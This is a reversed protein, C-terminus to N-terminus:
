IHILSLNEIMNMPSFEKSLSVYDEHEILEYSRLSKYYSTPLTLYEFKNDVTVGEECFKILRKFCDTDEISDLFSVSGFYSGPTQVSSILEILENTISKNM